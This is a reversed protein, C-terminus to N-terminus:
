KIEQTIQFEKSIKNSIRVMYRKNKLLSLNIRSLGPSVELENLSKVTDIKRIRVFAQSPKLKSLFTYLDKNKELGKKEGNDNWKQDVSKKKLPIVLTIRIMPFDLNM